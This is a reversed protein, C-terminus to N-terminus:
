VWKEVASNIASNVKAREVRSETVSFIGGGRPMRM